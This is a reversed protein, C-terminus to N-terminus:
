ETVHIHYDPKGPASIITDGPAAALFITIKVEKYTWRISGLVAPPSSTYGWGHPTFSEGVKVNREILSQAQPAQTNM